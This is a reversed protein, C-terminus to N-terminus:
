CAPEKTAMQRWAIGVSWPGRRQEYEYRVIDRHRDDVGLWKAVEDRVSKLASALNDDDLGNSPATRTLTVTCPTPPKQKGRLSWAVMGREAEVRRHRAMPHERANMGGRTRMGDIHIV